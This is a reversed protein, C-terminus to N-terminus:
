GLVVGLRDVEVVWSMQIPCSEDGFEPCGNNVVVPAVKGGREGVVVPFWNGGLRQCLKWEGDCMHFMKSIPLM